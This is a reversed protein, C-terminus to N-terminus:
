VTARLAMEVTLVRDLFENNEYVNEEAQIVLSQLGQQNYLKGSLMYGPNFLREDRVYNLLAKRHPLIPTDHDSQNVVSTKKSQPLFIHSIKTIQRHIVPEFLLKFKDLNNLRIPIAPGGKALEMNALVLNEREFLARVFRHHLPLRWLYKLSLGFNVLEKFCFPSISRSIGAAASLYAGGHSPYRYKIFMINAKIFNPYDEYPQIINSLYSKWEERILQERGKSIAFIPITNFIKADIVRDFNYKKGWNFLNTGNYAPERWEDGGLGTVSVNYKKARESQWYLVPALEPISLCADSKHLAPLLWDFQLHAWNDPLKLHKYEWGMKQSILRSIRVDPNDEKGVCYASFPLNLKALFMTTLRSDMGGTLDAWVKGERNLLLSFYKKILVAAQELADDFPLGAITEVVRPIWYESQIMGKSSFRLITAPSIRTVGQWITRGNLIKGTRLFNEIILDDPQANSIKAVAFASTSLFFKNDKHSVFISFQGTPDSVVLFENKHGDYIVLAFHGDYKELIKEGYALYGRLLEKLLHAPDNNGELAVVTGTAFIWSESIEDRVIGSHISSPADIKASICHQGIAYKVPLPIEKFRCTLALLEKFNEVRLQPSTNKDFIAAFGAM